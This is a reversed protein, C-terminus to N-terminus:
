NKQDENAQGFWRSDEMQQMEEWDRSDVTKLM